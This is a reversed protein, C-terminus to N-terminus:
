LSVFYTDGMGNWWSSLVMTMLAAAKCPLGPLCPNQHRPISRPSPLMMIFMLVVATVSSVFCSFLSPLSVLYRSPLLVFFAQPLYALPAPVHEEWEIELEAAQIYKVGPNSIGFYSFFTFYGICGLILVSFCTTPPPITPGTASSGLPSSREAYAASVNNSDVCLPVSSAPLLSTNAKGVPVSRLTSSGGGGGRNAPHSIASAANDKHDRKRKSRRKSNNANNNSSNINRKEKELEKQVRQLHNMGEPASSTEQEERMEFNQAGHKRRTLWAQEDQKLEEKLNLQKKGEDAQLAREEMIRQKEQTEKKRIKEREQRERDASEREQRRAEDKRKKEEEKEHIRKEEERNQADKQKREEEKQLEEKRVKAEQEKEERLRKDHEQQEMEEKEQREKEQKEKELQKKIEREEEEKKVSEREISLPVLTAKKPKIPGLVKLKRQLAGNEVSIRM